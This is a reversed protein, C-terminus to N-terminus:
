LFSTLKLQDTFWKATHYELSTLTKVEGNKIKKKPKFQLDIELTQTVNILLHSLAREPSFWVIVAAMLKSKKKKKPLIFSKLQVILHVILPLFQHGCLFAMEFIAPCYLLHKKLAPQVQRTHRHIFVSCQDSGISSFKIMLHWMFIWGWSSILFVMSIISIISVAARVLQM